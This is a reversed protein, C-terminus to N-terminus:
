INGLVFSYLNIPNVDPSQSTWDLSTIGNEEKWSSCLRSRHKPDNDEQLVWDRSGAGFWMDTSPLLGRRYITTMFNADLNRTFMILKGFGQKTFCGWVHVKGPHKVSRQLMKGDKTSWARKITNTMWFSSEDTFVVQSWDDDVHETAWEQRKKIQKATLLPKVTTARFQIQFERLRNRITNLSVNIGKRALKQKAAKLSIAPNAEFIRKIVLDEQKSTARCIGRNPLDDVNKHVLFHQNWHQVFAKSKKLYKSASLHSM